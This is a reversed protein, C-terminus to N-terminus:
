NRFESDEFYNFEGEEEEYFGGVIFVDFINNVGLVLINVILWKKFWFVFEREGGFKM